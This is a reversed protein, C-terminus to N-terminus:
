DQQPMENKTVYSSVPRIKRAKSRPLNSLNDQPHIQVMSYDEENIVERDINIAEDGVLKPTSTDNKIFKPQLNPNKASMPRKKRENSSNTIQPLNQYISQPM